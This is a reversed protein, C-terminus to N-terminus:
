GGAAKVNRSTLSYGKLRDGQSALAALIAKEDGLSLSSMTERLQDGTIVIPNPVVILYDVILLPAVSAKLAAGPIRASYRFLSEPSADWEWALPGEFLREGREGGKSQEFVRCGIWLDLCPHNAVAQGDAGVPRLETVIDSGQASEFAFFSALGPIALGEMDVPADLRNLGPKLSVPLSVRAYNDASVELTSTGPKLHTFRYLSLGADSQYYGRTVRDQLTMTVNWVWRKSVADRVSFELQSEGRGPAFLYIAAACALAAAAV